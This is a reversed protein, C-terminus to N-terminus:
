SININNSIMKRIKENCAAYKKYKKQLKENNKQLIKLQQEYSLSEFYKKRRYRISAYNREVRSVEEPISSSRAEIVEKLALKLDKKPRGPGVGITLGVNLATSIQPDSSTSTVSHQQLPINTTEPM